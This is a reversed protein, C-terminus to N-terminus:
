GAIHVQTGPATLALQIIKEIDAVKGEVVLHMSPHHCLELQHIIDAVSDKKDLYYVKSKGSLCRFLLWNVAKDCMPDKSYDDVSHVGRAQILAHEEADWLANSTFLNVGSQKTVEAKAM